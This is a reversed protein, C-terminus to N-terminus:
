YDEKSNTLSRLGPPTRLLCPESRSGASTRVPPRPDQRAGQPLAAPEREAEATDAAPVALLGSGALLSSPLLRTVDRQCPSGSEGGRAEGWPQM